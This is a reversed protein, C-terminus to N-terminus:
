IGGSRLHRLLKRLVAAPDALHTLVLRGVLADFEGELPLQQQIDGVVFVSNGLGADQARRRATELIAPNVDVGVVAGNPGVLDAGALSVDGAGSGVDLVRMGPSIGADELLRRLPLNLLRAQAMLRQTEQDSQGLSYTAEPKGDEALGRKGRGRGTSRWEVV